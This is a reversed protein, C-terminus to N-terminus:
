NPKQIEKYYLSSEEKKITKQSPIQLVEFFRSKELYAIEIIDGVKVNRSAKVPIGAIKIVKNDIMDQAITRRKTINVANLFKDIRM